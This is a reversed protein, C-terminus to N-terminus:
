DPLLQAVREFGEARMGSVAELRRVEDLYGSARGPDHAALREAEFLTKRMLHAYSLTWIEHERDRSPAYHASRRAVELHDLAADAAGMSAYLLAHEIGREYAIPHVISRIEEVRGNIDYHACAYADGILAEVDMALGRMAKATARALLDDASPM